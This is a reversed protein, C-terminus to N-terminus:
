KPRAPNPHVRFQNSIQAPSATGPAVTVHNAGGGPSPVVNCGICRLEGVTTVSIKGHPLPGGGVGGAAALEQVTAGPRSQASFGVLGPIDRHPGIGRAIQEPTAVGGRVVFASDPLTTAADLGASLKSSFNGLNPAANAARIAGVGEAVIGGFLMFGGLAGVMLTAATTSAGSKCDKCYGGPSSPDGGVASRIDSGIGNLTAMLNAFSAAAGKERGELKLAKELTLKANPDHKVLLAGDAALQNLEERGLEPIGDKPTEAGPKVAYVQGENFGDGMNVGVAQAVADNEDSLGLPDRGQLLNGSVYHYANGVEGGGAAHISLPDPSAWRGLRPILYREGFYTVGVEEDGEKGTFGMPEPAMSARETMWHTEQAGNPYFTSMELLAGSNLDIVASTNQILDTLAYTIRQAREPEKPDTLPDKKKWVIRSGGVGYQTETDLTTDPAYGLNIYDAVLGRRELNGPLPYIAVREAPDGQAPNQDLTQKVTRRNAGDYRYRQRVALQWDGSGARDYRRAEVLRNVEDWRYQYHQEKSCVCSARLHDNRGEFTSATDDDFCRATDSEDGCRARVTMAEVNGGEGYELWVWGGRDAGADFTSPATTPLNSALYLASPRKEAPVFFGGGSFAGAEDFGNEIRGISREYFSAADDHWEVMNALWDYAYTLDIVRNPALTIDPVMDAPRGRMPDAKEHTLSDNNSQVRTARWDTAADNQTWTWGSHRYDYGVEIVRYLADHHILQRAPKYGVPLESADRKDVVKTLNSVGDWTYAYDLPRTVADDYSVGLPQRLTTVRVPRRRIDYSTETVTPNRSGHGDGYTVKSVQRDATYELAEIVVHPTSDIVATISQPLGRRNYTLTGKVTPASGTGGLASWHPDPPLTMEVPRGAHDYQTTTQYSVTANLAWAGLPADSEDVSPPDTLTTAISDAEPIVSVTRYASTVNGRPDYYLVQTGGRDAQAALRGVWNSSGVFWDDYFYRVDPEITTSGVLGDAIADGPLMMVMEGPHAGPDQAEACRVYHEALLRGAHDYYFNQGCGRPDRV